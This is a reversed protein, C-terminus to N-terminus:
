PVAHCRPGHAADRRASAEPAAHPPAAGKRAKVVESVKGKDGGSIVKVKDGKKLYTKVMIPKGTKENM